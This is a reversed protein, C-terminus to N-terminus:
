NSIVNTMEKVLANHYAMILAIVENRLHLPLVEKIALLAEQPSNPNNYLIMTKM